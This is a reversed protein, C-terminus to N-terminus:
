EKDWYKNKNKSKVDVHAGDGSDEHAATQNISTDNIM